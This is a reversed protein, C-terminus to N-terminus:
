FVNRYPCKPGRISVRSHGFVDEVCPQLMDFSRTHVATLDELLRKTALGDLKGASEIIAADIRAVGPVVPDVDPAGFLNRLPTADVAPPVPAVWDAFGAHTAELSQAVALWLTAEPPTRVGGLAREAEEILVPSFTKLALAVYHYGLFARVEPGLPAHADRLARRHAPSLGHQVLARMASADAVPPDVLLGAYFSPLLSELRRTDAAAPEALALHIPLYLQWFSRLHRGEELSAVARVWGNVTGDLV